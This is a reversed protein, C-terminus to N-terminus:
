GVPAVGFQEEMTLGNSHLLTALDVGVYRLHWPENAYGTIAAKSPPYRVIFGFRHANDAVWRSAPTGGFVQDDGLGVLGVDLAMGTQHESTGPVAALSAAVDRGYAKVFRTYLAQQDQESRYGSKLMLQYGATAADATMAEFAAATTGTVQTADAGPALPVNPVVLDPPVYGDPLPRNRNVLWWLSGPADISPTAASTPSTPPATPAATPSTSPAAPTVASTAAPPAPPVPPATAAVAPTTTATTALDAVASTTPAPAVTPAPDDGGALNVVIVALIAAVACVALAVLARRRGFPPRDPAAGSGGGRTPQEELLPDFTV